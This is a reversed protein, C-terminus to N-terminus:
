FTAKVGVFAGIGAGPQVTGFLNSLDYDRDFLNEIRGSLTFTDNVEWQAYIRATTYSAVPVFSPGDGFSAESVHTLGLGLDLSDTPSWTVNASATNNPLGAQVSDTLHTWNTSLSLQDSLDVEYLVEYGASRSRGDLNTSQVETASVAQSGIADSVNNRFWTVSLTGFSGLDQSAGFEFSESNEPRLNPNALQAPGGFAPPFAGLQQFTPASFARGASAKLSLGIPTFKYGASAKWTTVDGWEEYDEWRLGANLSLQETPKWLHNAFLGYASEKREDNFSNSFETNEFFSGAITRHTESWEFTNIWELTQKEFDSEFTGLSSISTFDQTYHGGIVKTTWVPNIELEAYATYLESDTLATNPGGIGQLLKSDSRRITTGLTLSDSVDYDFRANFGATQFDARRDSPLDNETEEYYSSLVWSFDDIQGQTTLTSRFSDFSGTEAFLSLAPAGSGRQSSISIVGGISESGYLSSQSGRLIEIRDNGHIGQVGLFSGPSSNSSSINIGDLRIQNRSSSNGRIFLSGTQGRQGATSTSFVGPAKNLADQLSVIGEKQLEEASLLTVSATIEDLPEEIRNATVIVPELVDQAYLSGTLIFATPLSGSIYKIMHEHTKTTHVRFPMSGYIPPEIIERGTGM